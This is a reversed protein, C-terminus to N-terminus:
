LLNMTNRVYSKAFLLVKTNNPVRIRSELLDKATKRKIKRLLKTYYVYSVYVGLRSSKPLQKIGIYADDFELQIEEEIRKKDELSLGAMDVGPFYVRGLGQFDDKM